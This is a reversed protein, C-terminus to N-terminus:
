RRLELFDSIPRSLPGMVAEWGVETPNMDDWFFYSDPNDCVKYLPEASDWVVQGCYGMPDMSECCPVLRNPFLNTMDGDPHSGVIKFFAASLDLVLVGDMGALKDTLQHNHIRAVQNAHKDCSAYKNQRTRSPACGLPYLNNVLVKEVGLDQLRAVNAVIEATVNEVLAATIQLYATLHPVSTQQISSLNTTVCSVGAFVKTYDNGSVAVLTVSRGALDEEKIDGDRVLKAFHQVQRRLTTTGPVDFAGSGGAAFNMGAPGADPYERHAPPSKSQGIM